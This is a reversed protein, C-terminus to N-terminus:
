EAGGQAVGVVVLSDNLSTPPEEAGVALGRPGERGGVLRRSENPHKRVRGWGVRCRCGGVLRLSENTASRGWAGARVVGLM